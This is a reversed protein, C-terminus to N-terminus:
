GAARSADQREACFDPYMMGSTGLRHPNCRRKSARILWTAKLKNVDMGGQRGACIHDDTIAGDQGLLAFHFDHIPPHRRPRWRRRPPWCRAKVMCRSSPSNSSPVPTTRTADYFKKGGAPHAAPLCDYDYFEGAHDQAAPGTVFALAPDFFANQGVKKHPPRPWSSNQEDLQQAQGEDGAGARSAADTSQM